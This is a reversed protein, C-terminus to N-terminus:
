KAPLLRIRTPSDAPPSTTKRAVSLENRVRQIGPEFRALHGALVRDRQTAVVGRLTATGGQISVQLRSELRRGLTKELRWTLISELPQRRLSGTQWQYSPRGGPASPQRRADAPGTGEGLDQSTAGVLEGPLEPGAVPEASAGPAPGPQPSEGEIAPPVEALPEVLTPLPLPLLLPRTERELLELSSDGSSQPPNPLDEWINVGMPASFGRKFNPRPGFMGGGGFYRPRPKLPRGFSRDGFLSRGEGGTGRAGADGQGRAAPHAAVLVLLMAPITLRDIRM